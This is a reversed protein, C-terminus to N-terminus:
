RTPLPARPRALWNFLNRAYARNDLEDLDTGDSGVGSNFFTNRDFTVAVRGAGVQAIATIAYDPGTVTHGDTLLLGDGRVLVQAPPGTVRILSVGEGKFSHLGALVPHASNTFRSSDAVVVQYNDHQISIGFQGLLDNDSLEGAGLANSERDPSLGFRSDSFALLAGGRRIYGDLAAAEKSDFRRNNSGLVVLDYRALMGQTLPNVDPGTDALETVNHGQERLLMDALQSYGNRGTSGIRIMDSPDTGPPVSGYLFLVRTLTPRMALRAPAAMAWLLLLALAM